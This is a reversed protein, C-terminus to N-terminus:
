TSENNCNIHLTGSFLRSRTPYSTSRGSGDFIEIYISAEGEYNSLESKPINMTFIVHNSTSNISSTFAEESTSGSDFFCTTLRSKTYMLSKCVNPYDLPSFCRDVLEDVETNQNYDVWIRIHDVRPWKGNLDNTIDSILDFKFEILEEFCQYTIVHKENRVLDNSTNSQGFVEINM